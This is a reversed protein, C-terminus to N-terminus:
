RHARLVKIPPELSEPGYPGTSGTHSAQIKRVVDMGATVRGFVAFGQGDANRRGGFDMEPQDGITIVFSGTASDPGNRAMSIAGDLHKLGTVRTSEMAIPPFQQRRKAPDVQFQICQIEVDHRTTNDPRVARNIVGGDYFQGDVYRLFNQGTIPAHAVDVALTITGLETEISVGIPPAAQQATAALAAAALWAAWRSILLGIM